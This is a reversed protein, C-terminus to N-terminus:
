VAVGERRMEELMEEEMIAEEVESDKILEKAIDHTSVLQNIYKTLLPDEIIEDTSYQDRVNNYLKKLALTHLAFVPLQPTPILRTSSGATIHGLLLSRRSLLM